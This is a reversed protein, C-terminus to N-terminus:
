GVLGTRIQLDRVELPDLRRWEGPKLGDLGLDAFRVRKLQYVPHGVAACMRKIQRKRGERLGMQLHTRNAHRDLGKVGVEAPATLGDELEIGRRLAAISQPALRGDVVVEYLKDVKFRPHMLRFALDGDDTLLLVGSTDLDLRGVAVTGSRLMRVGDFITPRGHTDSRTVLSGRAKYLLIYEFKDPLQVPEEGVVVRDKGVLLSHGPQDVVRGNVQVIGDQIIEDSKRRSAIGARALFRNLRM